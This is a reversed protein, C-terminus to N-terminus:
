LLFREQSFGGGGGWCDPSRAQPGPFVGEFPGRKTAKGAFLSLWAPEVGPVSCRFGMIPNAGEGLSLLCRM